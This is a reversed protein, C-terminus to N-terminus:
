LQQLIEEVVMIIAHTELLHPSPNTKREEDRM